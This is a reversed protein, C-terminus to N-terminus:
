KLFITIIDNKRLKYRCVSNENIILFVINSSRSVRLFINIKENLCKLMLALTLKIILKVEYKCEKFMM